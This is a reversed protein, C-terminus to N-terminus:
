MYWQMINYCWPNNNGKKLVPTMRAEKRCCSANVIDLLGHLAINDFNQIIKFPSM